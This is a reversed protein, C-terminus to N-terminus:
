AVRGTEIRRRNGRDDAPNVFPRDREKVGDLHLDRMALHREERPVDDYAHPWEDTGPAMERPLNNEAVFHYLVGAAHGAWEVLRPSSADEGERLVTDYFLMVQWNFGDAPGDGAISVGDAPEGAIAIGESAGRRAAVSEIRGPKSM